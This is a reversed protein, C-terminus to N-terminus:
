TREMYILNCEIQYIANDKEENYLYGSNVVSLKLAEMGDPLLPFDGSKNKDEIWNSLKEYFGVNKLLQKIDDGYYERSCVIFAYQKRTSGDVYSKIVPKTPIPIISYELPEEPLYDVNIEKNILPCNELFIKISEIITEM